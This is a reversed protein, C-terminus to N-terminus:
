ELVMAIRYATHNANLRLILTVEVARGHMGWRLSFQSRVRRDIILPSSLTEGRSVEYSRREARAHQGRHADNGSSQINVEGSGRRCNLLFHAARWRSLDTAQRDRNSNGPRGARLILLPEFICRVGTWHLFANMRVDLRWDIENPTSQESSNRPELRDWAGRQTPFAPPMVNLSPLYGEKSGSPVEMPYKRPVYRRYSLLAESARLISGVLGPSPPQAAGASCVAAADRYDARM